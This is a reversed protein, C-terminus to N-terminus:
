AGRRPEKTKDATLEAEAALWFEVDRGPPRGAAEWLQHARRRIASRERRASTLKQLKAKLKEVLESLRGYTTPDTISSSIRTVQAIKQELERPDEPEDMGFAGIQIVPQQGSQKLFGGAHAAAPDSRNRMKAARCRRPGKEHRFSAEALVSKVPRTEDGRSCTFFPQRLKRSHM